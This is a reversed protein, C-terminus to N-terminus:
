SFKSQLSTKKKIQIDVLFVLLFQDSITVLQGKTMNHHHVFANAVKREYGM